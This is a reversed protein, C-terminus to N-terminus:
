ALLARDLDSALARYATGVRGEPDTAVTPAGHRPARGVSVAFPIQVALRKIDADQLAAQTDAALTWRPDAQCVLVGLLGLAPNFEALDSRILDALRIAGGVDFDAPRAPVTVWEAALLAMSSLAGLGPPTDVLVVDCGDGAIEIAERLAWESGPEGQRQAVIDALRESCPLLALSEVDPMPWTAEAARDPAALVDELLPRGGGPEHGLLETLNAQPDADVVLVRRGLQALAWGLNAVSTTKACGGKHNAFVIVPGM